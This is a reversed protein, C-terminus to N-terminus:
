GPEPPRAPHTRKLEDMQPVLLNVANHAEPRGHWWGISQARGLWIDPLCDRPLSALRLALRRIVPKPNALVRSLADIRRALAACPGDERQTRHARIPALDETLDFTTDEHILAISVRRKAARPPPLTEADTDPHVWCLMRFGCAGHAPHSSSARSASQSRSDNGPKVPSENKTALRQSTSAFLSNGTLGSFSATPTAAIQPAPSQAIRELAERQERQEREAIRPDVRSQLAAITHWGPMPITIKRVPKAVAAPSPPQPPEIQPTAARLRQGEPTLLFTVAEVLLLSRTLAEVPALRILIDRRDRRAIRWRQALSAATRVFDAVESCLQRARSWLTPADHTTPPWSRPKRSMLTEFAYFAGNPRAFTKTM